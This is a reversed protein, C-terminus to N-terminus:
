RIRIRVPRADIKHLVVLGKAQPLNAVRETQPYHPEYSADLIYTGPQKTACDVTTDRGIFNGWPLYLFQTRLWEDPAPLGGFYDAVSGHGCTQAWKGDLTKLRVNFGPINGGAEGWEKAIYVGAGTPKLIVRVNIPEGPTYIFKTPTIEVVALQVVSSADTTQSCTATGAIGLICASVLFELRMTCRGLVQQSHADCIPTSTALPNSLTLIALTNPFSIMEAWLCHPQPWNGLVGNRSRFPNMDIIM